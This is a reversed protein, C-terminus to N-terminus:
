FEEQNDMNKYQEETYFEFYFSIPFDNVINDYIDDRVRTIFWAYQDYETDAWIDFRNWDGDYIIDTIIVDFSVVADSGEGLVQNLKLYYRIDWDEYVVDDNQYSYIEDEFSTSYEKGEYMKKLTNILKKDKNIM